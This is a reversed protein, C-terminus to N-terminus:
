HGLSITIQSTLHQALFHLACQSFWYKVEKRAWLPARYQKAMVAGDVDCLGVYLLGVPKDETGGLPGAIGTLSLGISTANLARVGQAMELATQESVAGYSELTEAKVGLFKMKAVNSYTVINCQVYDSSGSIDTLRSSVLGGTCSEAVSVTWGKERLLIGIKQELTEDNEAFFHDRLRELIVARIPAIMEIAAAENEAKAAVRVRVEATGVYPAVTPNKLALLDSIKEALLSESIGFFRFDQSKLVANVPSYATIQRKAADWMAKLERPVGPFALVLTPKEADESLNWFVGPASGIPNHLIMSGSPKLAQKQNSISPEHGRREFYAAIDLAREVDYVLPVNFAAVLGEITLDDATPGLGGTIIILTSRKAAELLVTKIRDINDGVTVHHYVDIGIESLKESIWAANSNVVEGMLLETGIAIVEARM